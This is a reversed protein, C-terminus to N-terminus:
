RYRLIISGDGPTDLFAQLLASLVFYVSVFDQLIIKPVKSYFRQACGHM